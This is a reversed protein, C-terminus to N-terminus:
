PRPRLEERIDALLDLFDINLAQAHRAYTALGGNKAGKENNLITEDSVRAQPRKSVALASANQALREAKLKKGLRKCLWVPFKPHDTSFAASPPTSHPTDM